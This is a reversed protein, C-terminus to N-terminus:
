ASLADEVSDYYPMIKTLGVLSLVDLVPETGDALALTKGDKSLHTHVSVLFGIGKSNIFELHSFDFILRSLKKDNIVSDLEKKLIEVSAEDLEGKLHAVKVHPEKGNTVHVSFDSSM